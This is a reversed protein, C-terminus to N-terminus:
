IIRTGPLFHFYLVGQEFIIFSELITVLSCLVSTPVERFIPSQKVVTETRAAWSSRCHPWPQSNHKLGWIGACLGSFESAGFEPFTNSEKSSACISDECHVCGPVSHLRKQHTPIHPSFSSVSPPHLFARYQSATEGLVHYVLNSRQNVLTM